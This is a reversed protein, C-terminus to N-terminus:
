YFQKLEKIIAKLYNVSKLKLSINMLSTGNFESNEDEKKTFWYAGREIFKNSIRSMIEYKLKKIDIEEDNYFWKDDKYKYTDKIEEYIYLAIDYHSNINGITKDINNM